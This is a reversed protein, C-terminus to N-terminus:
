YMQGLGAQFSFGHASKSLGYLKSPYVIHTDPRQPGPVPRTPPSAWKEHGAILWWRRQGASVRAQAASFRSHSRFSSIWAPAAWAPSALRLFGSRRRVRTCVPLVASPAQAAVPMPSPHGEKTRSSRRDAPSAAGRWAVPLWRARAAGCCGSLCVPAPPM